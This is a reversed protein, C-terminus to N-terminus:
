KTRSASPTGPQPGARGAAADGLGRWLDGARVELRWRLPGPLPSLARALTGFLAEVWQEDAMAEPDPAGDIIWDRAIGGADRLMATPSHVMVRGPGFVDDFYQRSRPVHYDTTMVLLRQWQAEGALSHAVVAEERTSRSISRLVRAEPPVGLQDLMGAVIESGALEQGQLPAELNVIRPVGRRWATCAAATRARLERLARERDRRLEKGLILVAEYPLQPTSRM